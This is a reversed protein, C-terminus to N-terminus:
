REVLFNGWGDVADGMAEFFEDPFMEMAILRAEHLRHLHFERQEGCLDSDAQNTVEIINRLMEIVKVRDYLM